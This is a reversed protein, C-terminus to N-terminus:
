LYLYVSLFFKLVNSKSRMMQIIILIKNFSGDLQILNFECAFINVSVFIFIKILIYKWIRATKIIIVLKKKLDNKEM